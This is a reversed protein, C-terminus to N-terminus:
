GSANNPNLSVWGSGQDSESHDDLDQGNGIGDDGDSRVPSSCREDFSSSNPDEYSVPGKIERESRRFTPAPKTPRRIRSSARVNSGVQDSACDDDDDDLSSESVTPDDTETVSEM